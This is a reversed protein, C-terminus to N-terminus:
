KWRSREAVGEGPRGSPVNSILACTSSGCTAGVTRSGSLTSTSRISAVGLGTRAVAAVRETLDIPRPAERLVCMAGQRVRLPGPRRRTTAFADLGQGAPSPTSAIRSRGRRAGRCPSWRRWSPHRPKGPIRATLVAALHDVDAPVLGAARRVGAARRHLRGPDATACGEGLDMCTAALAARELHPPLDENFPRNAHLPLPAFAM